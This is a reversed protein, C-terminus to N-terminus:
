VSIFATYTSTRTSEAGEAAEAEVAAAAEAEAAAAAQQQQQQQQQQVVAPQDQETNKKKRGVRKRFSYIIRFSYSPHADSESFKRTRISIIHSFFHVHHSWSTSSSSSSAATMEAIPLAGVFSYACGYEM